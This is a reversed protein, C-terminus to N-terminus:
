GAAGRDRGPTIVAMWIGSLTGVAEEESVRADRGFADQLYATNLLNLARALEALEASDRGAFQPLGGLVGAVLADFRGRVQEQASAIREDGPAAEALARLLPGHRHYVAVAPAIASTVLEPAPRAAAAGIELENAYLAEMAERSSKILLDGLDDFHRYFLTRGIGAREMVEGVNLQAFGRERILDTAASVIRARSEVRGLRARERQDSTAM